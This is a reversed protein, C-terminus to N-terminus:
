LIKFYSIVFFWLEEEHITHMLRRNTTSIFNSKISMWKSRHYQLFKTYSVTNFFFTTGGRVNAVNNNRHIKLCKRVKPKKQLSENQSQVHNKQSCEIMAQSPPPTLGIMKIIVISAERLIEDSRPILASTISSALNLMTDTLSLGLMESTSKLKILSLWNKDLKTKYLTTREQETIQLASVTVLVKPWLSVQSCSLTLTGAWAWNLRGIASGSLIAQQGGTGPFCLCASTWRAYYSGRSCPFQWTWALGTDLTWETQGHVRWVSSKQSFTQHYFGQTLHCNGYCFILANARM